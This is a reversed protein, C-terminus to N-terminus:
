HESEDAQPELPEMPMPGLGKAYRTRDYESREHARTALMEDVWRALLTGIVAGGALAALKALTTGLNSM